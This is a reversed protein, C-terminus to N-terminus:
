VALTMLPGRRVNRGIRSTRQFRVETLMTSPELAATDTLRGIGRDGEVSRFETLVEVGRAGQHHLKNRVVTMM